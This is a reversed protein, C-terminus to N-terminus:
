YNNVNVSRKIAIGPETGDSRAPNAKGRIEDPKTGDSRAPNAKGRIEDPKTGDSRAPNAGARSHLLQLGPAQKFLSSGPAQGLLSPWESPDRKKKANRFHKQM